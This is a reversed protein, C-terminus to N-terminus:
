LDVVCVFETCFLEFGLDGISGVLVTPRVVKGIVPRGDDLAEGLNNCIKGLARFETNPSIM